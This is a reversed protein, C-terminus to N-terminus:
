SRNGHHLRPLNVAVPELQGHLPSSPLLVGSANWGCFGGPPLGFFWWFGCFGCFDFFGTGCTSNASFGALRRLTCNQVM